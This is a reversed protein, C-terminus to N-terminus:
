DKVDKNIFYLVQVLIIEMLPLIIPFFNVLKDYKVFVGIFVTVFLLTDFPHLSM